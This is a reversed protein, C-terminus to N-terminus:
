INRLDRVRRAAGAAGEVPSSIVIISVNRRNVIYGDGPVRHIIEQLAEVYRKGVIDLDVDITRGIGDYLPANFVSDSGRRSDTM